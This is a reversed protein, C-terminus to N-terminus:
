SNTQMLCMKSVTLACILLLVYELLNLEDQVGPNTCNMVLVVVRSSEICDRAVQLASVAVEVDHVAESTGPTDVICIEGVDSLSSISTELLFSRAQERHDGDEEDHPRELATRINDVGKVVVPGRLLPHSGDYEYLVGDDANRNHKITLKATTEPSVATPLFEGRLLANLITSKGSSTVGVFAIHKRQLLSLLGRRKGQTYTHWKSLCLSAAAPMEEAVAAGSPAACVRLTAMGGDRGGEPLERPASRHKKKGGQRSMGGFARKPSSVCRLPSLQECLCFVPLYKDVFHM